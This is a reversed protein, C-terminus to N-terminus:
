NVKSKIINMDNNRFIVVTKVVRFDVYKVEFKIKNSEFLHIRLM